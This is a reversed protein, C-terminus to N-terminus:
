RHSLSALAIARDVAEPSADIAGLRVNDAITRSLLLHEQPVYGIWSKLTDLSIREIPVGGIRLAEPQVPYQRLLQKLLTSKGSGTRGVIGLTQGQNLSLSIHQLSDVATEPYRFSLDCFAIRDPVVDTIHQEPEGIDPKQALTNTIREASAAGRQMVNIFEGFAIMPWILMGLYMQFMVLDGLTLEGQSVLYSGYGIGISFSLGVLISIAPQFLAHIVSVRANKRRTDEAVKRFSEVDHQEQGYSRIVRIGSISELAQDNLKGFAEQAALFRVRMKKGLLRIALALFPMPVLAFLMLKVNILVLMTAVLLGGVITHVLTMVGFGSAFNVARIDNTAQAM